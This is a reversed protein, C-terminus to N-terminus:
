KLRAVAYVVNTQLDCKSLHPHSNHLRLEIEPTLRKLTDANSSIEEWHEIEFYKATISKIEALTVRNLHTKTYHDDPATDAFGIHKWDMLLRQEGEGNEGIIQAPQNPSKHHGNWCYYNHHMFVIKTHKHCVDVLGEFVTDLQILHETVNHLSIVDFKEAFSLEESTGQFLRIDPCRQQIENPTIGMDRWERIRKNKARTSELNMVPDLGLYSKAGAALFGTGYGGFGCGVDLVSKGRILSQLRRPWTLYDFEVSVELLSPIYNALASEVDSSFYFNAIKAQVPDKAWNNEPPTSALRKAAELVELPVDAGPIRSQSYEDVMRIASAVDVGAQSGEVELKLKQAASHDPDNLLISSVHEHAENLDGLQIAVKAAVIRIGPHNPNLTIYNSSLAKADALAGKKLEILALFYAAPHTCKDKAIQRLYMRATDIDGNLAAEKGIQFNEKDIVQSM